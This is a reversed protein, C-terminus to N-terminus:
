FMESEGVKWSVLEGVQFSLNNEKTKCRRELKREMRAFIYAM